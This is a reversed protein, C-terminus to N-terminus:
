GAEPSGLGSPARVHCVAAGYHQPWFGSGLPPQLDDGGALSVALLCLGSGLGLLCSVSVAVVVGGGVVVAIVCYFGCCWARFFFFFCAVAVVVNVTIDAVDFGVHFVAVVVVFVVVVVVAAVVVGVVVALSCQWFCIHM